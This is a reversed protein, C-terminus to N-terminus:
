QPLQDEGAQRADQGSTKWAGSAGTIERLVRDLIDMGEDVQTETSVMPPAVRIIRGSADRTPDQLLLGKHRCAHVLAQSLGRAPINGAGEPSLEIAYMAGRGHVAGILPTDAAMAGLRMNLYEGMAAARSVLEEERVIDITTLAATCAVPDHWEVSPLRCNAASAQDAIDPATCVADISQGAGFRASVILIDPVVDDHQYGWMRGTKGYGTASEDIILLMGYQHCLRRMARTWGAGPGFAGGASPTMLLAAPRQECARLAAEFAAWPCPQGCEQAGCSCHSPDPCDRDGSNAANRTILAAGQGSAAAALYQFCLTGDHTASVTLVDAGGTVARAIGAAVRPAEGQSVFMSKQLPATLIEGFRCHLQLADPDLFSDQGIAHLRRRVAEVYRPHNHGLIAGTPNAGFDLYRGGDTDHVIPGQAHAIAPRLPWRSQGSLNPITWRDVTEQVEYADM